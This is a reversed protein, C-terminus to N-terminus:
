RANSTCGSRSMSTSPAIRSIPKPPAFRVTGSLSTAQRPSAFSSSDAWSRPATFVTFNPGSSVVPKLVSPAPNRFATSSANPPGTAPLDTNTRPVPPAPRATASAHAPAPTVAIERHSASAARLWLSATSISVFNKMSVTLTTAIPGPCDSAARSASMTM